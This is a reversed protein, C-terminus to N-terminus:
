RFYVKINRIISWPVTTKEFFFFFFFSMFVLHPTWHIKLLTCNQHSSIQKKINKPGTWWKYSSTNCSETTNLHHLVHADTSHVTLRIFVVDLLCKRRKNPKKGMWTAGTKPLVILDWFYVHKSIYCMICLKYNWDGLWLFLGFRFSASSIWLSDRSKRMKVKHLSGFCQTMEESARRPPATACPSPHRAPQLTEPRRKAAGRLCRDSACAARPSIPPPPPAPPRGVIVGLQQAAHETRWVRVSTEPRHGFFSVVACLHFISM